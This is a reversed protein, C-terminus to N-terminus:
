AVNTQKECCAVSAVMIPEHQCITPNQKPPPLFKQTKAHTYKVKGQANSAFFRNLALTGQHHTAM